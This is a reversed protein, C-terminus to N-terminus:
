QREQQRVLKDLDLSAHELLELFLVEELEGAGTRERIRRSRTMKCRIKSTPQDCGRVSMTSRKWSARMSKMMASRLRMSSDEEEVEERKEKRGAEKERDRTRGARGVRERRWVMKLGAM